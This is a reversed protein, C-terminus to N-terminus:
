NEKDIILPLEIKVRTGCAEGYNDYMDSIDVHIGSYGSAKKLAHLRQLSLQTGMSKHSLDNQEKSRKRGIGNDEIMCILKSGEASFDITLLGRRENVSRLGHLIANEVYTQVFMAPMSIHTPALEPAVRISFDFSNDLRLQELAIYNELLEIEDSLYIGNDVSNDLIKRILKAFRSLFHMAAEKENSAIFYQISNLSNFIFHPNMQARLATLQYQYNDAKLKEYATNRAEKYKIFRDRRLILLAIIGACLTIGLIIFWWTQWFPAKITFTYTSPVTGWLGNRLGTKVMFTYSGPPLNTYTVFSEVVAPSWNKDFGKLFYSYRIKDAYILSIGAFDFTIHNQNHPLTAKQPLLTDKLLLRQKTIYVPPPGPLPEKKIAHYRVLGNVTGIWIDNRSDLLVANQNTEVGVFGDKKGYNIVQNSAPDFIDVGTNTGLWIRDQRDCLVFYPNNSRLGQKIGYQIFRTHDYKYLGGGISAIWINGRSDSSLSGFSKVYLDNQGPIPEPTDTENNLILLGADNSGFWLRDDSDKHIAWVASTVFGTKRNYNRIKGSTYDYVALGGDLSAIWIRGRSDENINVTLKGQLGKSQDLYMFKRSTYQYCAAGKNTAMWINGRSDRFLKSVFNDPLGEKTTLNRFQRGETANFSFISIGKSTGVWYTNMDYELISYVENHVLGHEKNYLIFYNSAAASLGSRQSIWVVGDRDELVDEIEDDLLGNSQRYIEIRGNKLKNLGKSTAIWISGNRDGTVGTVVGTSMGDKETYTRSSNASIANNFVILGENTGCWLRNDPSLYLSTVRKSFPTNGITFFRYTKRVPDFLRIGQSTALYFIKDKGILVQSITDANTGALGFHEITTDSGTFSIRYLGNGGTAVWIAGMFNFLHNVIKDNKFSRNTIPHVTNQRLVSIAGSRHGFWMDGKDDQTISPVHNDPLGSQADWVQFQRGDFRCAGGQTGAWLYGKKDQYVGYVMSQPLGNEINYNVFPYTQANGKCIGIM